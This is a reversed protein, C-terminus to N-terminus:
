VVKNEVIIGLIVIGKRIEARIEQEETINFGVAIRM